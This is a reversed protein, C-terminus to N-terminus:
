HVRLTSCCLPKMCCLGIADVILAFVIVAKFIVYLNDNRIFIVSVKESAMIIRAVM